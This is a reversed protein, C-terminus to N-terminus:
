EVDYEGDITVGTASRVRRDAEAMADAINVNVNQDIQRKDGYRDRNWSQMIFKRTNIRLTSRAVDELSDSGDPNKGDSINVIENAMVETGIRRAHEYLNKRDPNEHIWRLLSGYSIERYDDRLTEAVTIGNGLNDLITEFINRYTREILRHAPEDPLEGHIHSPVWGLNAFTETEIDATSQTSSNATSDATHTSIAPVLWDPLDPM